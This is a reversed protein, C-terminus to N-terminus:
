STSSGVLGPLTTLDDVLIAGNLRDVPVMGGGVYAFVTMGAALAARVGYESDEVVACRDPQWGMSAAAHLFLDPAPKGNAVETASFVRPRGDPRPPTAFRDYLGTLGLSFRLREHTSSSAVCTPMGALDLADLTAEIGPTPRLEAEFLERMGRDYREDFNDPLPGVMARLDAIMSSYSKGLYRDIIEQESLAWGYEAFLKADLRVALRESDILVGDCDFIVADYM